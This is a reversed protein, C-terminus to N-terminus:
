KSTLWGMAEERTGFMKLDDRGSLKVVSKALWSVLSSAGCVASKNIYPKQKKIRTVVEWRAGMDVDDLDVANTLFLVPGHTQLLEWLCNYVAMADAQRVHGRWVVELLSAKEDLLVSYTEGALVEHQM